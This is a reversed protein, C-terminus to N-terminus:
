QAIVFRTRQTVTRAKTMKTAKKMPMAVDPGLSEVFTQPKGMRRPVPRPKDSQARMVTACSEVGGSNIAM